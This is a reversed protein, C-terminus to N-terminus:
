AAPESRGCRPAARRRRGTRVPRSPAEAATATPATATAEPRSGPPSVNVTPLAPVLSCWTWVRCAGSSVVCPPEVRDGIPPESPATAPAPEPLLLAGAEGEAAGDVFGLGFAVGFGVGDLVGEFVGGLVFAGAGFGTVGFVGAAGVVFAGAVFAGAGLGTGVVAAGTSFGRTVEM